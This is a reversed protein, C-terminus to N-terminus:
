ENPTEKPAAHRGRRASSTPTLRSRLQEILLRDRHRRFRDEGARIWYGTVAGVLLTFALAGFAGYLILADGAM